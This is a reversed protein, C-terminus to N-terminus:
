LKNEKEKLHNQLLIKIAVLLEPNNCDTIKQKLEKRLEETHDAKIKILKDLVSEDKLHIVSEILSLKKNALIDNDM